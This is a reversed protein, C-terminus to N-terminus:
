EDPRIGCIGYLLREVPSLARSAWFPDTEYVRAMYEGLPKALLLVAGFFLVLQLINNGTM